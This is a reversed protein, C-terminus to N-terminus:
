GAASEGRAKSKLVDLVCEEGPVKVVTTGRVDVYSVETRGKDRYLFVDLFCREGRYQWIEAPDDRRKFGPEGLLRTLEDPTMGVMRQPTPLSKPDIAPVGPAPKALPIAPVPAAPAAPLAATDAPRPTPAGAISGAPRSGEVGINRYTSAPKGTDACAAATLAVIALLPAARLPRSSRPPM